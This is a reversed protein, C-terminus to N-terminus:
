SADALERVALVDDALARLAAVEEHDELALRPDRATAFLDGGDFAAIEEALERQEVRRGPVGGDGRDALQPERHERLGLEVLHEFLLGDAVVDERSHRAAEM